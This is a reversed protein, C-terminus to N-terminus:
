RFTVMANDTPVKFEIRRSKAPDPTGSLWYDATKPQVLVQVSKTSQHYETLESQLFHFLALISKKKL